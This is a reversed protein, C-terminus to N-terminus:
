CRPRRGRHLAPTALARVRWGDPDDTDPGSVSTTSSVALHRPPLSEAKLGDFSLGPTALVELM